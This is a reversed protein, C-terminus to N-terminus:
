VRVIVVDVALKNVQNAASRDLKANNISLKKITFAGSLAALESFGRILDSYSTKAQLEIGQDQPRLLEIQWDMQKAFQNFWQMLGSTTDIKILWALWSGYHDQLQQQYNPLAQWNVREQKVKRYHKTLQVGLMAQQRWLTYPHYVLSYYCLLGIVSLVCALSLLRVLSSYHWLQKIQYLSHM